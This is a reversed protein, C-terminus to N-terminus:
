RTESRFRRRWRRAVLGTRRYEAKLASRVRAVREAVERAAREMARLVAANQEEQRRHKRYAAAAAHRENDLVRNAHREDRYETKLGSWVHGAWTKAASPPQDYRRQLNRHGEVRTDTGPWNIPPLDLLTRVDFMRCPDDCAGIRPYEYVPVGSYELVTCQTSAYEAARRDHQRAEKMTMVRAPEIPINPRRVEFVHLGMARVEDPTLTREVWASVGASDGYSEWVFVQMPRPTLIKAVSFYFSVSRAGTDYMAVRITPPGPLGALISALVPNRDLTVPDGSGRARVSVGTGGGRRM